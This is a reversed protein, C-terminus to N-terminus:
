ADWFHAICVVHNVGDFNGASDGTYHTRHKGTRLADFYSMLKGKHPNLNIDQEHIPFRLLTKFNETRIVGQGHRHKFLRVALLVFKV